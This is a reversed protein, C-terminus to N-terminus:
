WGWGYYPYGYYPYGYYYYHPRSAAAIGAGMLGLALRAFIAGSPDYAYRRYYHRYHCHRYYCHRYHRRYYAKEVPASLGVSAPSAVSIPGALVTSPLSGLATAACLAAAVASKVSKRM